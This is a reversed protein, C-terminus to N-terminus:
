SFYLNVTREIETKYFLSILMPFKSLCTGFCISIPRAFGQIYQLHFRDRKFIPISVELMKLEVLPTWYLMVFLMFHLKRIKLGVLPIAVLKSISDFDKFISHHNNIKFHM